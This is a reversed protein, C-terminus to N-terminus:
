LEYAIINIQVQSVDAVSNITITNEDTAVWDFTINQGDKLTTVFKAKKTLNHTIINPGEIIDFLGSFPRLSPYNPLDPYIITGGCLDTTAGLIFNLIYGTYTGAMQKYSPQKRVDSLDFGEVQNLIALFETVMDDAQAILGQQQEATSDAKDQFYFGMVCNWKEYYHNSLDVTAEIPYLYVQKNVKDFNLSAKWKDSHSFLGTPNVAESLNKVLNVVGLYSM